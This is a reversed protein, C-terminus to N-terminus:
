RVQTVCGKITQIFKIRWAIIEELIGCTVVYLSFCICPTIQEFNHTERPLIGSIEKSTYEILFCVNRLYSRPASTSPTGRRGQGPPQWVFCM